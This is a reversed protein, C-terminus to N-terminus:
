MSRPLPFRSWCFGTAEFKVRYNGPPLLSFKYTGDAGTMTTRVQGTDVSTLTITANPVVAGSADIATGSLAGTGATQGMVSAGMAITLCVVLLAMACFRFIEKSM